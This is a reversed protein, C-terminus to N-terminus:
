PGKYDFALGAFGELMLGESKFAQFVALKPLTTASLETPGVLRVREVETM